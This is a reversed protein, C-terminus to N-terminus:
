QVLRLYQNVVTFKIWDDYQLICFDTYKMKYVIGCTELEVRLWLWGAMRGRAAAAKM